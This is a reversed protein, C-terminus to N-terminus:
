VVLRSTAALERVTVKTDTQRKAVFYFEYTVL